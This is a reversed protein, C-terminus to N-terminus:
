DTPSSCEGAQGATAASSSKQAGSITATTTPGAGTGAGSSSTGTFAACTSSVFGQIVQQQGSVCASSECGSLDSLFAQQTCYCSWASSPCEFRVQAIQLVSSVCENYCGLTAVSNPAPLTTPVVSRGSGSSSSSLDPLLTLQRAPHELITNIEDRAMPQFGVGRVKMHRPAQTIVGPSATVPATHHNGNRAAM